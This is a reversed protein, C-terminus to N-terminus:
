KYCKLIDKLNTRMNVCISILVVIAIIALTSFGSGWFPVFSTSIAIILASIAITNRNKYRNYLNFYNNFSSHGCVSKQPLCEKIVHPQLALINLLLMYAAFVLSFALSIWIWATLFTWINSNVLISIILNSIALSLLGVMISLTLRASRLTRKCIM